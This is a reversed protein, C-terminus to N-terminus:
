SYLFKHIFQSSGVYTNRLKTHFTHTILWPPCTRRCNFGFSVSRLNILAGPVSSIVGTGARQRAYSYRLYERQETLICMNQTKGKTPLCQM